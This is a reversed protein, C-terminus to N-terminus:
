SENFCVHFLLALSSYSSALLLRRNSISADAIFRSAFLASFVDCSVNSAFLLAKHLPATLLRASIFCTSATMASCLFATKNCHSLCHHNCNYVRM